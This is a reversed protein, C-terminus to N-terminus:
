SDIIMEEVKKTYGTLCEAGEKRILVLDEIRIGFEGPMYIGPEATVLM